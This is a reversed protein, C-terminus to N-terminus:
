KAKLCKKHVKKLMSKLLRNEGTNPEKLVMDEYALSVQQYKDNLEKNEQRVHRMGEKLNEVQQEPLLDVGEQTLKVIMKEQQSIKNSADLWKVEYERRSAKAEEAEKKYHDLLSNLTALEEQQDEEEQQQKLRIEEEFDM